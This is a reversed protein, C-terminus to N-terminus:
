VISPNISYSFKMFPSLLPTVPFCYILCICFVYWSPLKLKVTDSVMNFILASIVGIIFTLHCVLYFFCYITKPPKYYACKFYSFMFIPYFFIYSAAVLGLSDLYTSGSMFFMRSRYFFIGLLYLFWLQQHVLCLRLIM